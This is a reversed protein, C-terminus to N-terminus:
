QCVLQWCVCLRRSHARQRGSAMCYNTQAAHAHTQLHRAHMGIGMDYARTCSHTFHECMRSFVRGVLLFQKCAGFALYLFEVSARVAERVIKMVFRQIKRFSSQRLSRCSADSPCVVSLSCFFLVIIVVLLLYYCHYCYYCNHCYYCNAAAATLPLLLLMKVLRLGSVETSVNGLM